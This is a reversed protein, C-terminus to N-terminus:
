RRLIHSLPIRVEGKEDAIHKGQLDPAFAHAFIIEVSLAYHNDSKELQISDTEGAIMGTVQLEAWLKKQDRYTLTFYDVDLVPHSFAAQTLLDGVTHMDMLQPFALPLDHLERLTDPGLATLMLLGNPRLVRRWEAILAPLEQCWPVILNALIFDISHDAFPLAPFAACVADLHSLNKKAYELMAFSSDIAILHANPYQKKLMSAADGTACGVDIMTNPKLTMWELRSFVEKLVERQLVSVNAYEDPLRAQWLEELSNENMKLVM